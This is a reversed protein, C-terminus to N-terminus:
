FTWKAALTPIVYFGKAVFNNSIEVEGGVSLNIKEWGKINNLNVWFQPETLFIHKTNQYPRWERWLDVFGSFTYWGGGFNIGWVGTIQWNHVENGGDPNKTHPILKYLLSLSWTKSFDRSHGSYTGGFLWSNNFSGVAHSLGGDYEVHVSLWDLNSEKWFCLERSIEWYACKVGNNYDMDVFFFTSGFDDPRFMEVTTTIIPRDGIDEKNYFARGLDTHFQLNQAFACLPLLFLITSILRRTFLNSKM